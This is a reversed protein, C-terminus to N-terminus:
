EEYPGQKLMKEAFEMKRGKCHGMLTEELACVKDALCVIWSERYRPPIPVLPFMHRKIINEEVSTLEFDAKANACAKYPHTFGHIKRCLEGDHWDYLFYDHLLAGMILAALNAKINFFRIISCSLYAVCICHTFVSVDGHQTFDRTMSFRSENELRGVEKSIQEEFYQRRIRM